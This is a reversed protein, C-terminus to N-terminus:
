PKKVSALLENRQDMRKRQSDLLVAVVLILGILVLQLNTDLKLIQLCSSLTHFLIIGLGVGFMSGSGGSMSVGGIAVCIITRFERGGGVTSSAANNSLADFLGGVAALAGALVFAFLKIRAVNIGAMQAAEKNGGVARLQYGFKTKRIVFDMLVIIGVFIFFLWNLNLPRQNV